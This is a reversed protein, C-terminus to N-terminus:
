GMIEVFINNEGETEARKEGGGGAKVEEETKKKKVENGILRQSEKACIKSM